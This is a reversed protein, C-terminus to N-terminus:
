KYSNWVVEREKSAKSGQEIELQFRKCCDKALKTSGEIIESGNPTRISRWFIFWKYQSFFLGRIRLVRTKIM